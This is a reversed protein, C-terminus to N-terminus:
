FHCSFPMFVVCCWGTSNADLINFIPKVLLEPEIVLIENKIFFLFEDYTIIGDHSQDMSEFFTAIENSCVSKKLNHIISTTDKLDLQSDGNSLYLYIQHVSSDISTIDDINTPVIKGDARPWTLLLLLLTATFIYKGTGSGENYFNALEQARKEDYKGFVFDSFKQCDCLEIWHYDPDQFFIQNIGKSGIPVFVKDYKIGASKLRIECENFNSVNFSLHNVKSGADPHDPRMALDSQILHLQVNGLWLWYGNTAFQPRNLLTLGLVEQYFRVSVDADKVVRCIHGISQLLGGLNDPDNAEALPNLTYGLPSNAKLDKLLLLDSKIKKIIEKDSKFKSNPYIDNIGNNSYCLGM